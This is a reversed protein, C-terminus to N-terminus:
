DFEFLVWDIKISCVFYILRRKGCGFGLFFYSNMAEKRNMDFTIIKKTHNEAEKTARCLFHANSSLFCCSFVKWTVYVFSKNESTNKKGEDIQRFDFSYVLSFRHAHRKASKEHKSIIAFFHYCLIDSFFFSKSFM